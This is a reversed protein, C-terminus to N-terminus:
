EEECQINQWQLRPYGTGECIMWIYDFDWDVFSAQQKMQEYTLPLGFGNDPVGGNTINLFYSNTITTNEEAEIGGILGGLNESNDEVEIGGTSYCNKVSGEANLGVLGGLKM